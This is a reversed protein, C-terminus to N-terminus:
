PLLDEPNVGEPLPELMEAQYSAFIFAQYPIKASYAGVDTYGALGIDDMIRESSIRDSMPPGMPTESNLWEIIFLAKPPRTGQYVKTLYAPKDPIRVYGHVLLCADVEEPALGPDGLPSLRTRLRDDGLNLEKKRAEILALNAPDDDIAIVNAGLEIMKFTFYGDKAALDAITKGRLDNGMLMFVEQPKQWADRESTPNSPIAPATGEQGPPTATGADQEQGTCGMILLFPLILVAYRMTMNRTAWFYGLLGQSRGAPYM